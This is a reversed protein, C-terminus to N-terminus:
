AALFSIGNLSLFFNDGGGQIKVAGSTEILIRAAVIVGGSTISDAPFTLSGSPRNGVPLTFLTTGAAITGSKIVGRLHVQGTIQVYGANTYPAGFNVWANVLTPATWFPEWRSTSNASWVGPLDSDVSLCDTYDARGSPATVVRVNRVTLRDTAGALIGYTGSSRVVTDRITVDSNRRTAADVSMVHVGPGLTAVVEVDSILCRKIDTEITIAAVDAREVVVRQITLNGVGYQATVGKRDADVRVDSIQCNAYRVVGLANDATGSGSASIRGGRWSCRQRQPTSVANSPSQIGNGMFTVTAGTSTPAVTKITAEPDAIVDVREADILWSNGLLYTGAPIYIVHVDNTLAAVAADFAPLDNTTGDGRAGFARVDLWHHNLFSHVTLIQTVPSNNTHSVATTDESGREVTWTTGSVGTVVMIESDIIITFKGQPPFATASSVSISTAGATIAGSLTTSPNNRYQHVSM